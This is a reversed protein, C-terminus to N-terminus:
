IGRARAKKHGYRFGDVAGREELDSVTPTMVLVLPSLLGTCLIQLLLQPALVGFPTHMMGGILLIVITLMGDVLAGFFVMAIKSAVHSFYFRKRIWRSLSFVAAKSFANLGIIGGSLVDQMLGLLFALGGGLPLDYRFSFAIVIILVVDPAPLSPPLFGVLTTEVLLWVIGIAFLGLAKFL